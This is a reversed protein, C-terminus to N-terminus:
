PEDEGDHEMPNMEELMDMAAMSEGYDAPVVIPMATPAAMTPSPAFLQQALQLQYSQMVPDPQAWAPPPTPLPTDEGVDLPIFALNQLDRIKTGKQKRVPWLAAMEPGELEVPLHALRYCLICQVQTDSTRVIANEHSPEGCTNAVRISLGPIERLGRSAWPKSM